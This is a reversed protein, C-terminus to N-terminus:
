VEGLHRQLWKHQAEMRQKEAVLTALEERSSAVDLPEMLPVNTSSNLTTCPEEGPHPVNHSQSRPFICSLAQETVHDVAPNENTLHVEDKSPPSLTSPSRKQWEWEQIFALHRQSESTNQLLHCEIM